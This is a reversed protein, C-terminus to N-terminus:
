KQIGEGWEELLKKQFSDIKNIMYKSKIELFILTVQPIVYIVGWGCAAFGYVVLWVTPNYFINVAASNQSGSSVIGLIYPCFGTLNFASVIKSSFRGPKRDWIISIMSPLLALFLFYYVDRMELWTFFIGLVTMILILFILNKLLGKQREQKLKTLKEKITSNADM